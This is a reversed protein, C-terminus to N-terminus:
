ENEMERQVKETGVDMKPAEVRAGNPKMGGVKKRM